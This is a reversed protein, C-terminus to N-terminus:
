KGIGLKKHKDKNHNYYQTYKLPDLPEIVIVQTKLNRNELDNKLVEIPIFHLPTIFIVDPKYKEISEFANDYGGLVVKNAIKLDEILSVREQEDFNYHPVFKWKSKDRAIAVILNNCRNKSQRLYHLHGRHIGDFAGFVMGTNFKM